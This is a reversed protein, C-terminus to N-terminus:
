RLLNQFNSWSLSLYKKRINKVFKGLGTVKFYLDSSIVGNDNEGFCTYKGEHEISINFLPLISMDELLNSINVKIENFYWAIKPKPKGDITCTLNTDEYIDGTM